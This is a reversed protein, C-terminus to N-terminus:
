GKVGESCPNARRPFRGPSAQTLKSAEIPPSLARRSMAISEFKRLADTLPKAAPNGSLNLCWVALVAHLAVAPWLLVGRLRLVTGGFRSSNRAVADYILNGTLLGRQAPTVADVRCAMSYRSPMKVLRSTSRSADLGRALKHRAPRSADYVVTHKMGLPDFINAKLFDAFSQGSVIAVIIALLV